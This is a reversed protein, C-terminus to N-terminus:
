DGALEAQVRNDVPPRRIELLIVSAIIVAGGLLQMQEMREGLFILALLATLAPEFTAIISARTSGLKQIGSNLAFVPMVTSVLALAILYIWADSPPMALGRVLMMVLLVLLAGTVTWASARVMDSYGRLLRSSTIMYIAIILADFLAWLVGPLNDGNLGASFDPATLAIGVMTLGLAIWAQISLREGMLAELIAVMAPYTYVLVVFTGSPLRELGFFATLAAIALLAGMALVRLRPLPQHKREGRAVVLLWFIPVTFLFRWVAIDLPELGRALLNKTFVPLCAYGTVSLIIFLIGDRRDHRM